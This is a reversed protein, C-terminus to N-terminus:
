VIDQDYWSRVLNEKAEQYDKDTARRHKPLLNHKHLLKRVWRRVKPVTLDQDDIQNMRGLLIVRKIDESNKSPSKAWWILISDQDFDQLRIM